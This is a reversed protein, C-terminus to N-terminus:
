ERKLSKKEASNTERVDAESEVSTIEGDMSFTSAMKLCKRKRKINDGRASQEMEKKIIGDNMKYIGSFENRQIRNGYEISHYSLEEM